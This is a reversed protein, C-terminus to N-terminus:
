SSRGRWTSQLMRLKVWTGVDPVPRVWGRLEADVKRLDTDGLGSDGAPGAPAPTPHLRRRQLSLCGRGMCNGVAWTVSIKGSVSESLGPHLLALALDKQLLLVRALSAWPFYTLGPGVGCAELRQLWHLRLEYSGRKGHPLHPFLTKM